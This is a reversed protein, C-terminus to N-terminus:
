RARPTSSKATASAVRAGELLRPSSLLKALVAEAILAHGLRNPHEDDARLESTSRGSERWAPLADLTDFGAARAADIVQRHLDAYPYDEWREFRWLTPLVVVLVRTGGSATAARIEEFADLVGRWKEPDRHLYVFVDGGGLRDQDWMRKEFAFFRLLASHEWWVPERFHQHLQQIPEDEPDNLYYGIIVLDPSLPMAKHRVVLAEDHTSYGSVGMNLVEFRRSGGAESSNLRGELVKPWAEEGSVRMGFTMSDGIAAIRVDGARREPLPEGDRMGLSNTEVRLGNVSRHIGPKMEYDLGPVSSRRHVLNKWLTGDASTMPRRYEPPQFLRLFIEGGVAATSIVVALALLLKSARAPSSAM